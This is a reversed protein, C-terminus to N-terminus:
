LHTVCVERVFLLRPIRPSTPLFSILSDLVYLELRDPESDVCFQDLPRFIGDQQLQNLLDYHIVLNVGLVVQFNSSVLERRRVGGHNRM